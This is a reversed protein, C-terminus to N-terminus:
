CAHVARQWGALAPAARVQLTGLGEIQQIRNNAVDLIQLHM